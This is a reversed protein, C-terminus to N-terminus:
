IEIREPLPQALEAVRLPLVNDNLDSPHVRLDLPEGVNRGLQDPASWVHDNRLAICHDSSELLRGLGYGNDRRDKAIRDFTWGRRARQQQTM